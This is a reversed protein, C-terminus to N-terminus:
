KDLSEIFARATVKMCATLAHKTNHFAIHLAERKQATELAKIYATLQDADNQITFNDTNTFRIPTMQIEKNFVM